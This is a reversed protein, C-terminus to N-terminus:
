RPPVPITSWDSELSLVQSWRTGYRRRLAETRARPVIFIFGAWVGFQDDLFQSAKGRQARLTALLEASGGLGEALDIGVTLCSEVPSRAPPPPASSTSENCSTACLLTAAVLLRPNM